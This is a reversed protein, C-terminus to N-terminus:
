NRSGTTAGHVSLPHHLRHIPSPNPRLLDVARVSHELGVVAEEGAVAVANAEGGILCAGYSPRTYGNMTAGFRVWVHFLRRTKLCNILTHRAIRSEGEAVSAEGAEDAVPLSLLGLHILLPWGMRSLIRLTSLRRSPM